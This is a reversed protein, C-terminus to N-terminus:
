LVLDAHAKLERRVPHGMIDLYVRLGERRAFKMAPVLDSDGTVLVVVEVLHGLSMRAIDLGIRLDVGKQSLDPILDNPALPRPKQVHSALAIRGLKWGTLMLTGRRVAFDTELELAALLRNGEVAQQTTAFNTVRSDIPNRAKEEFPPADYYYVRLLRLGALRSDQRLQNAVAVIDSAKPEKGSQQKLKKKVFGGDLLIAFRETM